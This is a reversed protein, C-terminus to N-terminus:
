KLCWRDSLSAIIASHDPVFLYLSMLVPGSARGNGQESAGSVRKNVGCQKSQECVGSRESTLESVESVVESTFCHIIPHSKIRHKKKGKKVKTFQLMTFVGILELKVSWGVIPGFWTM